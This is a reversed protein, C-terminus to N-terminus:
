FYLYMLYIGNILLRLLISKIIMYSKICIGSHPIKKKRFIKSRWFSFHFFTKPKQFKESFFFEVSQFKSLNILHNLYIINIKIKNKSRNYIM